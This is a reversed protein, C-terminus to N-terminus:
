LPSQGSLALRTLNHLHCIALAAADAEDDPPLASLGLLNQIMRQVQEKQATGTGTVAQKVRRPEYEYVPLGSRACQSIVAGRAEGLILTTKFNKSLFVSEIAAADPQHETIVAEIQRQINLLCASRPLGPANRVRGTYLPIHRTGVQEVVALGTSRLSTDIGLIKM